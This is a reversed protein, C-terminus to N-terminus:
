IFVRGKGKGKLTPLVQIVKAPLQPCLQSLQCANMLQLQSMNVHQTQKLLLQASRVTMMICPTVHFHVAKNEV